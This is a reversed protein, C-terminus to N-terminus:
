NSSGFNKTFDAKNERIFRALKNWMSDKEVLEYYENDFEDFRPDDFDYADIFTDFELSTKGHAEEIVAHVRKALDSLAHEGISELLNPLSKAFRGNTNGYYQSFGGNTVQHNFEYLIYMTRHAKPFASVIEHAKKYDSIKKEALFVFVMYTLDGDDGTKDILDATLEDPIPISNIHEFMASLDTQMEMFWRGDENDVDADFFKTNGDEIHIAYEEPYNEKMWEGVTKSAM